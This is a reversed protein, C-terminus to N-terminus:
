IKRAEKADSEIDIPVAHQEQDSQSKALRIAGLDRIDKRLATQPRRTPPRREAAQRRVDNGGLSPSLTRVDGLLAFSGM